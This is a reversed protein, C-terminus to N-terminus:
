CTLFSYLKLFNHLPSCTGGKEEVASNKGSGECGCRIGSEEPVLKFNNKPIMLGNPLNNKCLDGISASAKKVASVRPLSLKGKM